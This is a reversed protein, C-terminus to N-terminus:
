HLAQGLWPRHMGCGRPDSRLPQPPAPVTEPTLNPFLPPCSASELFASAPAPYDPRPCMHLGCGRTTWAELPAPPLCRGLHAVGGLPDGRGPVFGAGAVPRVAARPWVAARPLLAPAWAVLQCGEWGSDVQLRQAGPQVGLPAQARVRCSLSHWRSAKPQPGTCGPRATRAQAWPLRHGAAHGWCFAGPELAAKPRLWSDAPWSPSGCHM